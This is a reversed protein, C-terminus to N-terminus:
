GWQVALRVLGYVMLAGVSLGVFSNIFWSSEIFATVRPAVRGLLPLLLLVFLVGYVLYGFPNFHWAAVLEGSGIAFVSRTLGCGPCPLETMSHFWCVPVFPLGRPALLLTLFLISGGVASLLWRTRRPQTVPMPATTM